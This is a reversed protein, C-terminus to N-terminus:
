SFSLQFFQCYAYFIQLIQLQVIKNSFSIYTFLYINRRQQHCLIKFLHELVVKKKSKIHSDFLYDFKVLWCRVESKNHM